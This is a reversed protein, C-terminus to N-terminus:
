SEVHLDDQLVIFKRTETDFALISNDKSYKLVYIYKGSSVYYPQVISLRDNNDGSNYIEKTRIDQVKWYFDVDEYVIYNDIIDVSFDIVTPIDGQSEYKQEYSQLIAAFDYGYQQVLLNIKNFDFPPSDPVTQGAASTDAAKEGSDYYSEKVEDVASKKQTGISSTGEPASKTDNSSCGAAWIITICILCFVYYFKKNM